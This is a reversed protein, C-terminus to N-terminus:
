NSLKNYFFGAAVLAIVFIIETEEKAPNGVLSLLGIFILFFTLICLGTVFIDKM